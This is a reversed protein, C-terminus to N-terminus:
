DPGRTSPNFKLSISWGSKCRESGLELWVNRPSCGLRIVVFSSTVPTQLRCRPALYFFLYSSKYMNFRNDRSYENNNTIACIFVLISRAFLKLTFTLKIALRQYLYFYIAGILNLFFHIFYPDRSIFRHPVFIPFIPIWLTKKDSTSLINESMFLLNWFHVILFLYRFPSDKM